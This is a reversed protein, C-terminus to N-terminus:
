SSLILMCPCRIREELLEKAVSEVEWKTGDAETIRWGREINGGPVETKWLMWTVMEAGVDVGSAQREDNTTPRKEAYRVQMGNSSVDGALRPTVTVTMTGPMKKRMAVSMRRIRSKSM